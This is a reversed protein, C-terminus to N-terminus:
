YASRSPGSLLSLGLLDLLSLPFVPSSATMTLQKPDRPQGFSSLAAMVSFLLGCSCVDHTASPPIEDRAMGRKRDPSPEHRHEDDSVRHRPLCGECFVM